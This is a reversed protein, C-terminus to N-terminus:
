YFDLWVDANGRLRLFVDSPMLTDLYNWQVHVLVRRIPTLKSQVTIVKMTSLGPGMQVVALDRSRTELTTGQAETRTNEMDITHHTSM